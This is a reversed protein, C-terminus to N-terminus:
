KVSKRQNILLIQLTEHPFRCPLQIYNLKFESKGSSCSEVFESDTSAMNNSSRQELHVCVSLLNEPRCQVGTSQTGSGLTQPKAQGFSM